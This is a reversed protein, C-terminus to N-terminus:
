PREDRPRRRLGILSLLFSTFFIQVGIILLTAALLTVQEESLSGLGRGIWHAVVVAGIGIGSAMLTLGLLLGHELRLRSGFHEFSPDRDGLQYVAFSRGCLGFGILQTGVV